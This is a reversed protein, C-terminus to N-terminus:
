RWIVKHMDVPEAKGKVKQSPMQEFKFDQPVGERVSQSVVVDGGQAFANLRSALNVTDGIISYEMKTQSGLNGSVVVGANIGIGVRKLLENQGKAAAENLRKQIDIAASVSRKVHDPRAMPVGFVGLVADGIFKDVYGGHDLIVTTVISFYENLDEVVQEPENVESYATFGRIDTFLVSATNRTGKLWTDEPNAMIMDLVETSVYRGFTEQMLSKMRLERAMYNFDSALMGLEDRRNLHVEYSFNGRGIERTAIVLQSIPKTFGRSILVAAAICGFVIFLSIILISRKQKSTQEEIFDLSVGVNVEGLPKDQYTVLSSLNLIKGGDASIYKILTVAGEKYTLGANEFKAAPSGIQSIDTHAMVVGDTDKIFAYVLGESSSAEKILANLSLVDDEILALKANYTFYNLTMKGLRVTQAYLQQEQRDLFIYSLAGITISVILAMMISLRLWIPMGLGGKSKISNAQSLKIAEEINDSLKSIKIGYHKNIADIVKEETSFGLDIILYGIRIAEGIRQVRENQKELALALQDKSIIGQNILIQGFLLDASQSKDKHWINDNPRQTKSM